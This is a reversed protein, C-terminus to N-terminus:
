VRGALITALFPFYMFHLFALLHKSYKSSLFSLSIFFYVFSFNSLGTATAARLVKYAIMQGPVFIDALTFSSSKLTTSLQDSVNTAPLTVLVGDASELEM